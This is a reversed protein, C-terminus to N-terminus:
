LGQKYSVELLHEEVPSRIPSGTAPSMGAMALEAEDQLDMPHPPVPVPPYAGGMRGGVPVQNPSPTHRASNMMRRNHVPSSPAAFLSVLILLKAPSYPVIKKHSRIILNRCIM